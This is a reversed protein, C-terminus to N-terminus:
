RIRRANRVDSWHWANIYTNFEETNGASGRHWRVSGFSKDGIGAIVATVIGTYPTEFEWYQGRRAVGRMEEGTLEEVEWSLIHRWGRM